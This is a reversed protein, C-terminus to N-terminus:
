GACRRHQMGSLARPVARPASAVPRALLPLAYTLTAVAHRAARVGIKTPDHFTMTAEGPPRRRKLASVSGLNAGSILALCHKFPGSGPRVWSRIECAQATRYDVSKTPRLASIQVRSGKCGM